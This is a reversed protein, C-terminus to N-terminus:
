SHIMRLCVVQWQPSAVCVPIIVLWWGILIMCVNGEVSYKRLKLEIIFEDCKGVHSMTAERIFSRYTLNFMTDHTLRTNVAWQCQRPCLVTCVYPNRACVRISHVFILVFFRIFNLFRAFEIRFFILLLFIFRVFDVVDFPFHFHFVISSLSSASKCVLTPENPDDM